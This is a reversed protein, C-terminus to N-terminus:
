CFNIRTVDYTNRKMLLLLCDDRSIRTRHPWQCCFFASYTLAKPYKVLPLLAVTVSYLVQSHLLMSLRDYSLQPEENILIAAITTCPSDVIGLM